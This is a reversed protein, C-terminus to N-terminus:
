QNVNQKSLLASCIQFNFTMKLKQIECTLATIMKMLELAKNNSQLQTELLCFFLARLSQEGQAGWGTFYDESETDSPNTPSHEARRETSAQGPFLCSLHSFFFFAFISLFVPNLSQERCEFTFDYHTRRISVHHLVQIKNAFKLTTPPIIKFTKKVVSLIHAPQNIEWIGELDYSLPRLTLIYVNNEGSVGPLGSSPFKSSSM